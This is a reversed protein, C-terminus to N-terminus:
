QLGVLPFPIISIFIGIEDSNNVAIPRTHVDLTNQSLKTGKQKFYNASNAM